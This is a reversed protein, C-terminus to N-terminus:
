VNHCDIAALLDSLYISVACAGIRALNRAALSTSGIMNSSNDKNETPLHTSAVATHTTPASVQSPAKATNKRRPKSKGWRARDYEEKNKKDFKRARNELHKILKKREKWYLDYPSQDDQRDKAIPQARDPTQSAEGASDASLDTENLATTSIQETSDLDRALDFTDNTTDSTSTTDWETPDLLTVSDEQLLLADISDVLDEEDEELDEEEDLEDQDSIERQM